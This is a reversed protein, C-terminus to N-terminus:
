GKYSEGLLWVDVDKVGPVEIILDHIHRLDEYSRFRCQVLIRFTGTAVDWVDSVTDEEKLKKVVANVADTPCVIGIFGTFEYGLKDWDIKPIYKLIVGKEELKNVRLNATSRPVDLESALQTLRAGVGKGELMKNLVEMDLEDINGKM